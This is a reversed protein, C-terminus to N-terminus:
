ARMSPRPGDPASNMRDPARTRRTRPLRLAAGRTNVAAAIRRISEGTASFSAVRTQCGPIGLRVVAEWRNKKTRLM